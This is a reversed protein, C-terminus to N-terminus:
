RGTRRTREKEPSQGRKEGWRGEGRRGIGRDGGGEGRV